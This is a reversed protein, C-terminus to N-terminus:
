TPELSFTLDLWLWLYIVQESLIKIEEFYISSFIDRKLSLGFFAAGGRESGDNKCM